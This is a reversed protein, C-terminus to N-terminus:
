RYDEDLSHLFAELAIEDRPELRIRSLEPDANRVLGARAKESMSRYFRIVKAVTDKDGTHLYPASQDPDRVTPTKFTAVARSLLTDDDAPGGTESLLSRLHGQAKPHDPNAFINWMGLDTRGPREPDPPSAFRNDTDPHAASRPLSAFPDALRAPVGPIKLAAFAGEGHMDDYEEQTAGTNHYKFDSFAPPTHCVACNGVAGKVGPAAPETAFFIKLGALERAGFVFDRRMTTFRGESASVFRPSELGKVLTLLRAAYARPTEGADPKRPLGNVQLFRDYPSGSYLGDKDRIFDLNRLYVTVLRAIHALIEEDSAKDVDLRYAPSLRVRAPITPDTGALLKRYAGGANRALIGSGDDERIVHAIHAVAVAREKPLWGLNRGTLGDVVLDEPSTFEGDYHLSTRPHDPALVGVLVPSNRPTVTIGDGREPVPSRTAFDCYTRNGASAGHEDVLHCARCNMSQKAFPGPLAGGVNATTEVTIDGARFVANADGLSKRAFYQAFRTENFFREGVLSEPTDTPKDKACLSATLCLFAASPRWLDRWLLPM